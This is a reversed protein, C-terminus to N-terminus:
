ANWFARTDAFRAYARKAKKMLTKEESDDVKPMPLAVSGYEEGGLDFVFQRNAIDNLTGLSDQLMELASLSKKLRKAQAKKPFTAGFFESGYRLRKARIRLKHRDAVSLTQLDKGKRLVSRRLRSLKAVAYAGIPEQGLRNAGDTWDGFEIWAGLDLLAQRCRASNIAQVAAEQAKDRAKRARQEVAKWGPDDPFQALHPHVIDSNFVDLDRAPGLQSAIWKLNAAV